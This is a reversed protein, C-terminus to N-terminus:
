MFNYGPMFSLLIRFKYFELDSLYAYFPLLIIFHGVPTERAVAADDSESLLRGAVAFLLQGTGALAVDTDAKLVLWIWPEVVNVHNDRLATDVTVNSPLSSNTSARQQHESSSAHEETFSWSALYHIRSTVM